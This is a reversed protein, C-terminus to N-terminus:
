VIQFLRITRSCTTHFRLLILERRNTQQPFEFGNGAINNRQQNLNLQKHTSGSFQPGLNQKETRNNLLEQMKTKFVKKVSKSIMTEIENMLSSRSESDINNNQPKQKVVGFEANNDDDNM